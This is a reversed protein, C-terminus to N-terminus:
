EHGIVEGTKGNLIAGDDRGMTVRGFNITGLVTKGDPGYVTQVDDGDENLRSRTQAAAEEGSKPIPFIVEDTHVFGEKGNDATEPLLDPINYAWADAGTPQGYTLGYENKPWSPTISDYLRGNPMRLVTDTNRPIPRQSDDHSDSAVVASSVGLAGVFTVGIIAAATKRSINM